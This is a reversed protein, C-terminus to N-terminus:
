LGPHWVSYSMVSLNLVCMGLFLFLDFFMKKKILYSTLSFVIADFIVMGPLLTQIDWNIKISLQVSSLNCLVKHAFSSMECSMWLYREFFLGHIVQFYIDTFNWRFWIANEFVKIDKNLPKELVTLILLNDFQFINTRVKVYSWKEPPKIDRLLVRLVNLLKENRKTEMISKDCSLHHILWHTFVCIFACSLINEIKKQCRLEYNKLLFVDLCKM